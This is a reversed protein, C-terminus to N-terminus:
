VVNFSFVGNLSCDVSVKFLFSSYLGAPATQRKKWINQAVEFKQTHSGNRPFSCNWSGILNPRMTKLNAEMKNSAENKQKYRGQWYILQVWWGLRAQSKHESLLKAFPRKIRTLLTNLQVYNSDQATVAQRRTGACSLDIAPYIYTKSYKSYATGPQGQNGRGVEIEYKM